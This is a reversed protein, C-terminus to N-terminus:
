LQLGPPLTAPLGLVPSEMSAVPYACYDAAYFASPRHNGSEKVGGFPADSAAGCTPRNWNVVGARVRLSFDEWAAADGGLLSAALGYRTRNALEIAQDWDRYRYLTLLPGFYEEDPLEVGTADVLGPSLLSTGEALSHMRLLVQAGCEELERQADLMREAALPSVLGGYFPAPEDFQGGVRLRAMTQILRETLAVGWDGDPVLLRRACSCRQGASLFASNVINVVAADIDCDDCVVLPNNGGLELALLKDVQGAFQAHIQKGSSASGTFLVGDLGRQRTLAQGVERGGQLLNIVGAPLGAELWCGLVLDASKPTLESPKFVVCNGALLAPVIHGNPLHGPFNYPGFVAMVGHPRHSVRARMDGKDAVRTGARELQAEISVNVKNIMADVETLTEWYPKGTEEAFCRALTPRHARLRERFREVLATRRELPARAWDPFAARAAAVAQRVQAESASAGEWLPTGAVPDRKDFRAGEGDVWRGDILQRRSPALSPTDSM